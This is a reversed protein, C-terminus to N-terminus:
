MWSRGFQTTLIISLLHSQLSCVVFSVHNEPWLKVFLKITQKNTQHKVASVFLNPMAKVVSLIRSYYNCSNIGVFNYFLNCIFPVSLYIVRVLQSREEWQAEESAIRRGESTAWLRELSYKFASLWFVCWNRQCMDVLKRSISSFLQMLVRRSYSHCCCSLDANVHFPQRWIRM